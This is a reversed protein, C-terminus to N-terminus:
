ANKERARDLSRVTSEDPRTFTKEGLSVSNGTWHATSFLQLRGIEFERM